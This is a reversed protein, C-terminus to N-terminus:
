DNKTLQNYIWKCKEPINLLTDIEMFRNDPLDVDDMKEHEWTTQYPVHIAFGGLEVVPFIDSRMSNGIMLFENATIDLHQFLKKYDGTQKDSMIEIHHFYKELRSKKLKREQDLLDGKTALILKYKPALAKLVKEVNDLLVLPSDTLQKGADLIRRVSAAPLTDNSLRLATELISLTYAKAGYGFLPLNAIETKFLEASSEEPTMKDLMIENFVHELARYFPENDWLTDDADFAIYKINPKNKM